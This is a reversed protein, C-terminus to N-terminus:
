LVVSSFMEAWARCEAVVPDTGNQVLKNAIGKQEVKIAQQERDIKDGILEEIFDVVKIQEISM